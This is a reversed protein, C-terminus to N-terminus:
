KGSRKAGYKKRIPVHLEREAVDVLTELVVNKFRAEELEGKLAKNENRLFHLERDQETMVGRKVKGSHIQFMIGYTRCWKLITSHGLIGYKRGAESKTIKGREVEKVVHRKFAETFLLGNSREM